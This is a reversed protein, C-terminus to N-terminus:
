IFWRKVGDANNNLIIKGVEPVACGADHLLQAWQQRLAKM